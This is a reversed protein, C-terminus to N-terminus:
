LLTLLKFPIVYKFSFFFLVKTKIIERANITYWTSALHPDLNKKRAFDELFLRMNKLNWYGVPKTSYDGFVLSLGPINYILSSKKRRNHMSNLHRKETATNIVVDEWLVDPRIRIIKPSDPMEKRSFNDCSFTVVDGIEPCPVLVDQPPVTFIRGDPRITCFLDLPDLPFNSHFIFMCNLLYTM